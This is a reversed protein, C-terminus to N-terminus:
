ILRVNKKIISRVNREVLRVNGPYKAIDRDEYKSLCRFVAGETIATEEGQIKLNRISKKKMETKKRRAGCRPSCVSYFIGLSFLVGLRTIALLGLVKWSKALYVNLFFEM